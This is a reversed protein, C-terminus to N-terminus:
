MSEDKNRINERELESVFLEISRQQNHTLDIFRGAILSQNDRDLYNVRRIELKFYLNKHGM